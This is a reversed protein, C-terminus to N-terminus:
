PFHICNINIASREGADAHVGENQSASEFGVAEFGDRMEGGAICVDDAQLRHKETSPGDAAHTVDEGDGAVWGREAIVGFGAADVFHVGDAQDFDEGPEILSGVPGALTQAAGRIERNTDRHVRDGFVDVLLEAAELFFDLSARVEGHGLGDEVGFM